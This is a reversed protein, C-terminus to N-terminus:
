LLIFPLYLHPPSPLVNGHFFYKESGKYRVSPLGQLRGPIEKDTTMPYLQGFKKKQPFTKRVCSKIAAPFHCTFSIKM